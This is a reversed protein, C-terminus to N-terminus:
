GGKPRKSIKEMWVKADERVSANFSKFSGLHGFLLHCNAGDKKNECLVILNSPDLELEPHMHFPRVHHVELKLRGGCVACSTNTKLFERRVKPWQGSRKSGKPAKNKSDIKM